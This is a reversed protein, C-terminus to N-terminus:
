ATLRRRNTELLTSIFSRRLESMEPVSLLISEITEQDVAGIREIWTRAQPGARRVASIALDVLTVRRGDEFRGAFGGAALVTPDKTPMHEDQLGSVLASGHDFSAALSRSGNANQTIVGWNIAHRDTNAIWADFLLYGAFQDFGSMTATAAGSPGVDDLLREINDLNHGIRNKPRDDGACSRYGAFESLLTDGSELSSGDPTVNKSIIGIESGRQALEVRASPLGIVSALESAIKESWDDYRRYSAAKIPKFLWWRSQGERRSDSDLAVWDKPDLGRAEQSVVVWGSIDWVAFTQKMPSSHPRM